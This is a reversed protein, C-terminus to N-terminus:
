GTALNDFLNRAVKIQESNGKDLVEAIIERAAESDGMDIYAKALDLKTEMEDLDIFDFSGDNDDLYHTNASEINPKVIDFDFDFDESTDYHAMDHDSNLLSDLNFENLEKEDERPLDVASIEIEQTDELIIAPKNLTFADRTEEPIKTVSTTETALKSASSLSSLDFDISDNNKLERDAADTDIDSLTAFESPSDLNDQEFPHSEAGMLTEVFATDFTAIDFTIDESSEDSAPTSAVPPQTLSTYINDTPTEQASFLNNDAASSLKLDSWVEGGMEIVKAWFEAQDKKGADALEATYNVFDKRRETACFIELLKLKYEDNDPQDKIAQRMLEEAQQYRGYALYVDTESIPDIEVHSTDFVEFDSATFENLFSNEELASTAIASGGAAGSKSTAKTSANSPKIMSSPAFMSEGDFQEDFKRKRWWLWGLLSLLSGGIGAFWLYSTDAQPTEIYPNQGQPVPQAVPPKPLEPISVVPPQTNKVAETAPVAPLIKNDKQLSNLQQEKQLLDKQLSSLQKELALIEDTKADQGSGVVNIGAKAEGNQGNADGAKPKLETTQTSAPPTPETALSTTADDAVPADTPAALTLQKEARKKVVPPTPEEEKVVDAPPASHKWARMQQNFEALAQKKSLSTIDQKDPIDLTKNPLLANINKKYFGQPNADYIALMMQETSTESDTNVREAVKWLTDHKKTVTSGRETHLVHVVPARRRHKPTAAITRRPHYEAVPTLPAADIPYDNVHSISAKQYAAPPELLVTFQRYLSGKAWNVELLFDLFPEKLAESSSVKIVTSGNAKVIPEFKVKSLFLAWPVKAEDFKAPPALNVSINSLDENASTVLSIEANLNQNLESHVKISGIGLSYASAPALLSMVALTKTLKRV